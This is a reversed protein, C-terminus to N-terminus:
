RKLAFHGKIERGDLLKLKFWYDSAPLISSNSTGNWGKEEPNIQTVINGFRDFIAILADPQFQENIGTIQWYDNVGDGNPTFFKPYGMVSIDKVVEGCGNTDRVTLTLFGPEINNFINETQYTIGDLSYEYIGEGEVEIELSNNNSFDTININQIIPKGSSIVTFKSSNECRIESGGREYIFTTELIYDGAETINVGQKESILEERNNIQQSWRYTSFGEPGNIFLEKGECITYKETLFLKPSETVVLEIVDVGLCQGSSERLGYITSTESIYLNNVENKELAAHELTEYFRIEENTYKEAIAELDFSSLLIDDESIEDCSYFPGYPSAGISVPSIELLLEGLYTCGLINVAKYYLMQNFASTNQYGTTNPIRIDNNRNSISEYFYFLIDPDTNIKELNITTIGDTSNAVDLDCKTQSIIPDPVTHIKVLAEGLIPCESPSSPIIDVSYRGSDDSDSNTIELYYGTAVVIPLGNKFWSYTAGPIEEAELRFAEGACRSLTSSRTGDNNLVLQIKGFFSQIFPPLGQTANRELFVANHEYNAAAGKEDPNNIVGLYPTGQNYSKAITRYIKGNNALQLAGRFIARSDLIVESAAIDPANLDFQLLNSKHGSDQLNDNSTHVYLYDGEPSFEVGYPFQNQESITIQQQNTLIGTSADFNYLYLGDRVNASAIKTGDASFKLYGRPDFIALNDFATQVPDNLVGAANIEYSYYTNLTGSGGRTSGLTLVWVSNDSCDKLVATIKESSDKLLKVNKQIVAGSGNNLSIDVVTYNFGFDPDIEAISTDVTFIFFQNPDEPKPVILASQTSTPDGLLGEGNEMIENTRDYVTIGDTYFLLNGFTDSIAACGEFTNLKGNKLPTVSGDNNFRLGAENGFYWNSAEGQGSVFVPCLILFLLLTGIKKM